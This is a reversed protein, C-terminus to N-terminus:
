CITFVYSIGKYYILSALVALSIDWAVNQLVSKSVVAGFYVSAPAKGRFFVV